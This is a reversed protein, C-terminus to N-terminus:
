SNVHNIGSTIWKKWSLKQIYYKSYFSCLVTAPPLHGPVWHRHGSYGALVWFWKEKSHLSFCRRWPFFPSNFTFILFVFAIKGLERSMYFLFGLFWANRLWIHLIWHFNQYTMQFDHIKIKVSGVEFNVPMPRRVYLSCSSHVM